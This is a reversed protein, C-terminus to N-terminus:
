TAMINMIINTTTNMITNTATAGTSMINMIIIGMVTAGTSMINTISM